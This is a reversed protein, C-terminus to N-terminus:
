KIVAAVELGNQLYKLFSNKKKKSSHFLNQQFSLRSSLSLSPSAGLGNKVNRERTDRRNLFPM